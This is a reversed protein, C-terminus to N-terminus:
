GVASTFQRAHCGSDPQRHCADREDRNGRQEGHQQHAHLRQVARRAARVGTDPQVRDTRLVLPELALEADLERLRAGLRRLLRLEPTALQGRGDAPKRLLHLGQEARDGLHLVLPQRGQGMGVLRAEFGHPCRDLLPQLQQAGVIRLLELVDPEGDVFFEVGRELLPQAFRELEHGVTELLDVLSQALHL